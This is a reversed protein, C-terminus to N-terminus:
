STAKGSLYEAITASGCELSCLNFTFRSGSGPDLMLVYWPHEWVLKEAEEVLDAIASQVETVGCGPRDCTMTVIAM